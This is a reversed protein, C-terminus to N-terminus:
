EACALAPTPYSLAEKATSKSVSCAAQGCFTVLLEQVEHRCCPVSAITTDQGTLAQWCHGTRSNHVLPVRRWIM